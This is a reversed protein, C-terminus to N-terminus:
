GITAKTVFFGREGFSEMIKQQADEDAALAVVLGGRGTGTVKAGLAGYSLADSVIADLADDSVGIIKLLEHNRNLLNGVVCLDGSTLKRVAESFIDNYAGVVQQMKQPYKKKFDKVATVVTKTDTPIGSDILVIKIQNALKIPVRIGQQFSFIGGFTAATNDIGSATGHVVCDGAFAAQNIQEDNLSLAFYQNAARAIAVAAAASAGIGGCTVPLSGALTIVLSEPKIGMHLLIREAMACYADKKSAIFGPGKPRNDILECEGTPSKQIDATTYMDLAAVLAPAGHVVFHEGFLITKGYGRTHM